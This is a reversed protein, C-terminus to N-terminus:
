GRLIVHSCPVCQAAPAMLVRTSSTASDASPMTSVAVMTTNTFKAMIRTQLCTIPSSHLIRPIASTTSAPDCLPFSFAAAARRWSHCPPNLNSLSEYM